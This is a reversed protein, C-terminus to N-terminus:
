SIRKAEHIQINIERELNSFNKTMKTKFISERGKKKEERKATRMICVNNQKMTGWLALLQRCDKTNHKKKEETETIELTRGSQNM